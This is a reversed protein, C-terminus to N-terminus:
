CYLMFTVVLKRRARGRRYWVTHTVLRPASDFSVSLMAHHVRPCTAAQGAQGETARAPRSSCRAWRSSGTRM